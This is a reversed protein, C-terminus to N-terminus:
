DGWQTIEVSEVCARLEEMEGGCTQLLKGVDRFSLSVSKLSIGREKRSMAVNRVGRLVDPEEWGFALEPPLTSIVLTEISPCWLEPSSPDELFPLPNSRLLVLTKLSGFRRIVETVNQPAEARSAVVYWAFHLTEVSHIIGSSELFSLLNNVRASLPESPRLAKELTIKMDKSNVFETELTISVPCGTNLIFKTETRVTKVGTLYPSDLQIPFGHNWPIVLPPNPNVTFSVKCTPPLSLRNFPCIHIAKCPSQHTFSRLHPLPVAESSAEDATFGIDTDRDGYDLSIVELLPCSRFFDLLGDGLMPPLLSHLALTFHFNTLNPVHFLPCGLNVTSLSRISPLSRISGSAPPDPSDFLDLGSLMPLPQALYEDLYSSHAAALGTLRDTIGGLVEKIKESLNVDRGLDVSVPASKSRKLFVLARQENKFILHSWLRPSSVLASRWFHCVHTAAVRSQSELHSAVVALTEPPLRHTISAHHNIM